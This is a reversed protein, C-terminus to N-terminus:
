DSKLLVEELWQRLEVPAAKLSN